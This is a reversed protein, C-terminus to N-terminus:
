RRYLFVPVCPQSQWAAEGGIFQRCCRSASIFARAAIRLLCRHILLRGPRNRSMASRATNSKSPVRCLAPTGLIQGRRLSTLQKGGSSRSPGIAPEHQESTSPLSRRASAQRGRVFSRSVSMSPVPLQQTEPNTGHETAVVPLKLALHGSDGKFQHGADVFSKRRCQQRSRSLAIKLADSFKALDSRCTPSLRSRRNGEPCRRSDAM